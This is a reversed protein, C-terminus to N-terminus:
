ERWPLEVGLYKFYVDNNAGPSAYIRLRMAEGAATKIIAGTMLHGSGAVISYPTALKWKDAPWTGTTADYQFNGELDVDVPNSSRTALYEFYWYMTKSQDPRISYLDVVLDTNTPADIWGRENLLTPAVTRPQFFRQWGRRVATDLFGPMRIPLPSTM